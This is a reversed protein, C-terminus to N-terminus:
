QTPVRLTTVPVFGPHQINNRAMIEDAREVSDYWDAALVIAPLVETTQRETVRAALVLRSSIDSNVDSRVRVLAQFLTDDTVRELERDIATNLSERVETLDDWSPVTAAATSTTTGANTTAESTDIDTVAPHPITVIVPSAGGGAGLANSSSTLLSQSSSRSQAPKPLSTVTYAAESIASVRIAQAVHNSQTKRSQTTTSDTSWVGRPALDHGATVGTLGTIMSVLSKTDGSLRTGARWMTQLRNVFNMASGGSGLLVTLDGNMLRAAATVGADVYKFTDTVFDMMASADDLVGDNIFDPLGDLGFAEMASGICEDLWSVSSSLKKGTALGATPFSLEGAEVFSFAIRCMRGEDNTHSIRAPENITISMEGYYPHILTAPGEKEIEQILRNRQEMFDDGIVYAEVSFHRTARGLDESYPKDRNPYEHVQVRRGFQAEDGSIKFKVGRLSADHLNDIWSM